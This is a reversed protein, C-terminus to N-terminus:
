RQAKFEGDVFTGHEVRGGLRRIIREPQDPDAHYFPVDKKAVLRIGASTITDRVRELASHGSAVNAAITQKEPRASRITVSGFTVSHARKGADANVLIQGKAGRVRKKGAKIIMSWNHRVSRVRALVDRRAVIPGAM